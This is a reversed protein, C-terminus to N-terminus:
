GTEIPAGAGWSSIQGRGVGSSPFTGSALHQAVTNAFLAPKKLMRIDEQGMRGGMPWMMKKRSWEAGLERAIGKMSMDLKQIALMTECWKKVLARFGRDAQFAGPMQEALERAHSIRGAKEARADDLAKQWRPRVLTEWNNRLNLLQGLTARDGEIDTSPSILAGPNNGTLPSRFPDSEEGAAISLKLASIQRQLTHRGEGQDIM